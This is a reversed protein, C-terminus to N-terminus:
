KLVSLVGGEGKGGPFWPATVLVEALGVDDDYGEGLEEIMEEPCEVLDTTDRAALGSNM